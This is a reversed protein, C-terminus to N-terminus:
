KGYVDEKKQVQDAIITTDLNKADVAVPTLLVAKVAKQGNPVEVFQCDFEAAKRALKASLYATEEALKQPPHYVTMLQAGSVIRRCTSLDNGIGAIFVKGTLNANAQVSDLTKPDSALVALLTSNGQPLIATLNMRANASSGEKSAAIQIDGRDILPQLVKLQGARLDKSAWDEPNGDLLVYRGKPVKKVMTQAQLEGVKVQSFDIYYDLDSDPILQELSIVKIGAQHAAAVLPAVKSPDCPIVVLAQIGHQILDMVQTEQTAPDDKADKLLLEARSETLEKEMGQILPERGQSHDVSLGVKVKPGGHGWGTLFLLGFCLSISFRLRM